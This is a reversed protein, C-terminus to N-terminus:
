SREKYISHLLLVGTAGPPSSKHNREMSSIPKRDDKQLSEMTHMVQIKKITNKTYIATKRRSQLAVPAGEKGFLVASAM